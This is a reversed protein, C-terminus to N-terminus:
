MYTWFWSSISFAAVAGPVGGFSFGAPVCVSWAVLQGFIVIPRAKSVQLVAPELPLQDGEEIAGQILQDLTLGEAYVVHFGVVNLVFQAFIYVVTMFIFLNTPKYLWSIQKSSLLKKSM